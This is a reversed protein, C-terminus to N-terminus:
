NVPKDDFDPKWSETIKRMKAAVVKISENVEDSDALKEPNNIYNKVTSLIDDVVEADVIEPDSMLEYDAVFQKLIAMYGYKDFLKFAADAVKWKRSSRYKLAQEASTPSSYVKRMNRINDYLKQVEALKSLFIGRVSSAFETTANKKYVVAIEYISLIMNRIQQVLGESKAQAEKYFESYPNFSTDTLEPGVIWTHENINYCGVSMM